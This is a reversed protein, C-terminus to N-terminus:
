LRECFRNIALTAEDVHTMLLNHAGDFTVVECDPRLTVIHKLNRAQILWDSRGAVCLAPCTTAALLASVDINLAARARAQLVRRPLADAVGHLTQAIDPSTRDGLMMWELLWDPCYRADLLGVAASLASPWPNKAFTSVLILGAARGPADHAIRIAVPGSFSEGLVVFRGTPLRERVFGDLAAYDLAPDDPYPIVTVRRYPSLADALRTRLALTGDLGPLLVLPLPGDLTM